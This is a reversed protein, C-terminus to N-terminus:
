SGTHSISLLWGSRGGLQWRPLAAQDTRAREQLTVAPSGQNAPIFKRPAQYADHAPALATSFGVVRPNIGVHSLKQWPNIADSLYALALFPTHVAQAVAMCTTYVFRVALM